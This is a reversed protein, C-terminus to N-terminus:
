KRLRNVKRNELAVMSCLAGVVRQHRSLADQRAFAKHCHECSYPKVNSHLKEHRNRDHQRAFRRSCGDFQCPFPKEATHTRKHSKLNYPRTFKKNCEPFDCQYCQEPKSSQKAIKKMATTNLTKRPQQKKVMKSQSMSTTTSKSLPAVSFTSFLANCRHVPPQPEPSHTSALMPSVDNYPVTPAPSWILVSPAISTAYAPDVSCIPMMPSGALSPSPSPYELAGADLMQPHKTEQYTDFIPKALDENYFVPYSEHPHPDAIFQWHNLPYGYLQSSDVALYSDLM